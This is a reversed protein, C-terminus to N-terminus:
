TWVNLVCLRSTKGFALVHGMAAQSLVQPNRDGPHGEEM